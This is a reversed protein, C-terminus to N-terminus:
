GVRYREVTAANLTYGLGPADPLPLCGDRLLFPENFIAHIFPNDFTEFEQLEGDYIHLAGDQIAPEEFELPGATELVQRDNEQYM